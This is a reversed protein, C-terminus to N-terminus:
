GIGSSCTLLSRKVSSQKPFFSQTKRASHSATLLLPPTSPVKDWSRVRAQHTLSIRELHTNRTFRLLSSEFLSNSNQISTQFCEQSLGLSTVWTETGEDPCCWIWTVTTSPMLQVEKKGGMVKGMCFQPTVSTGFVLNSKKWANGEHHPFDDFNM